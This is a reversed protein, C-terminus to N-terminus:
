WWSVSPIRAGMSGLGKGGSWLWGGCALMRIQLDSLRGAPLVPRAKPLQELLDIAATNGCTPHPRSVKDLMLQLKEVDQQLSLRCDQLALIVKAQEDM